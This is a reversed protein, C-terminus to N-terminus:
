ELKKERFWYEYFSTFGLNEYLRHAYVNDKVVQLYAHTCGKKEAERLITSVIARAYHRRRCSPDVYIAYIGCHGRDLIGIGSAVMRGDLEIKAVITEKPIAQYMSPVIRRLTPNTTGNLRFLATVWENTIRDALQVIAGNDYSVNSPLSSNRGYFEYEVDDPQYGRFDKMEMIMTETRHRVAYNRAELAQDFSPDLLPSIKFITPTHFDTYIKECYAIKEDIPICSVGVQQVSNTRYTYNYSYRILWGDYLEMKYSPWANLSIEELLNIYNKDQKDIM